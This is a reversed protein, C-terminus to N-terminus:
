GGAAIRSERGHARRQYPALSSLKLWKPFQRKLAQPGDLRIRGSRIEQRLNRFGRWTEIFRRIDARVILDSDFGPHKLCMDTKGDTGILWFRRIATVKGSFRFEIVTRGPPMADGDMRLHMSWALFAPDLDDTEMDRAWHQGWVAMADIIPELDAGAPTLAYYPRGDVKSQEIIGAHELEKLRTSLMGPSIKPVGHHIENFTHCGDVVRSIVLVTWRQCLLETALALPCYQGYSKNPM